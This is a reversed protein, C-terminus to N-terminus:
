RTRPLHQNAVAVRHTVPRDSLADICARAGSMLYALCAASSARTATAARRDISQDLKVIASSVRDFGAPHRASDRYSIVGKLKL